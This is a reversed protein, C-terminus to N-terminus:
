KGQVDGTRYLYADELTPPVSDQGAGERDIYRVVIQEGASVYSLVSCRKAIRQFEQPSVVRQAVYGRASEMVEGPTGCALVRGKQLIAVQGCLTEVEQVIHTSLIVTTAQLAIDSILNRFRIRESPDLGATPEDVILLKPQGIVAQAIGLRRLMGGSLSKIKQEGFEELDTLALARSVQVRAARPSVDKMHAIYILAERM